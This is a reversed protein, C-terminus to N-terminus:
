RFGTLPAFRSGRIARIPAADAYETPLRQGPTRDPTNQGYDHGGTTRRRPIGPDVAGLDERGVRALLIALLDRADRQVRHDLEDPEEVRLARHELDVLDREVGDADREGVDLALREPGGEPPLDRLLDAALQAGEDRARRPALEDAPVRRDVPAGAALLRDDDVGREARDHVLVAVDDEDAGLSAVDGLLLRLLALDGLLVELELAQELADALEVLDLRLEEGVDAVLQARREGEDDTGGLPQQGGLRERRLCLALGRLHDHAVRAHQELVDVVQEVDRLELRALELDLELVGVDGRQDAEDGRVEVDQRRLAVHRQPDLRRGDEDGRHIRLLELAHQHVQQRVRELEDRRAPVTRQRSSAAFATRIRDTSSEPGPTFGSSRLRWRRVSGGPRRRRSGAPRRCRGRARSRGRTRRSACPRCRPARNPARRRGSGPIAAARAGTRRPAARAGRRRGHIAAREVAEDLLQAQGGERRARAFRQGVDGVPRGTGAGGDQHDLVVGVHVAEDALAQGRVVLDEGREVSLLPELLRQRVMRIEDDRVEHHGADAAFLHDGLQALMGLHLVGRDEQQRRLGVLLELIPEQLAARLVEDDLGEGLAIQQDPGAIEDGHPARALGDALDLLRAPLRHFRGVPLQRLAGLPQALEELVGGAEHGHQASRVVDELQGIGGEVLEDPVAVDDAARDGVRQRLNGGLAEDRQQVPHELRALRVDALADRDQELALGARRELFTVDVEDELREDRGVAVHGADEDLAGVDGRAFTGLVRQARRVPALVLEERGEGVLQAVRERRDTVRRPDALRRVRGLRLQLPRLVDDVALDLVHRPQEVVQQLDRADRAALQLQALLAQVERVAQDGRDFGGPRQDLRARVLQHDIEGGVGTLM